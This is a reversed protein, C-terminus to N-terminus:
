TRCAYLRVIYGRYNRNTARHKYKTSVGQLFPLRDITCAPHFVYSSSKSLGCLINEHKTRYMTKIKNTYKVSISEHIYQTLNKLIDTHVLYRKKNSHKDSKPVGM